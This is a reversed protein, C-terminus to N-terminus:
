TLSRRAGAHLDAREVGALAVGVAELEVEAVMALDDDDVAPRSKDAPVIDAVLIEAFIRLDARPAVRVHLDCPGTTCHTCTEHSSSQFQAALRM